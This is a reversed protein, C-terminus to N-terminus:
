SQPKEGHEEERERRTLSSRKKKRQPVGTEKRRETAKGKSRGKKARYATKNTLTDRVVGNKLLEQEKSRATRDVGGTRIRRPQVVV